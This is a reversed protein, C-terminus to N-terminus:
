HSITQKIHPTTSIKQKGDTARILCRYEVPEGATVMKNKQSKSKMSALDFRKFTVWVSGKDRNREFM